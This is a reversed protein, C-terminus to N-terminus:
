PSEGTETSVYRLWSFKWSTVRWLGVPNSAYKFDLCLQLDGPQMQPRFYEKQMIVGSLDEGEEVILGTLEEVAAAVEGSIHASFKGVKGALVAQLDELRAESHEFTGFCGAPIVPKEVIYIM